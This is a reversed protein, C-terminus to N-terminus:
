KKPTFVTSLAPLGSQLRPFPTTLTRDIIFQEIFVSAHLLAYRKYAVESLDQYLDVLFRTPDGNGGGGERPDSFDHVPRGSEADTRRSFEIFARAAAGTPGVTWLPNHRRDFIDVMSLLKGM